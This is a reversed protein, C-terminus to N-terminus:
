AAGNSQQCSGALDLSSVSRSHKKRHPRRFFNGPRLLSVAAGGGCRGSFFLPISDIQLLYILRLLFACGFILLIVTGNALLTSQQVAEARRVVRRPPKSSKQSRRRNNSIM